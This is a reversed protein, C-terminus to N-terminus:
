RILFFGKEQAVVGAKDQSKRGRQRQEEEEERRSLSLQPSSLPEM